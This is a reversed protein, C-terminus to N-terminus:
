ICLIFPDCRLKKDLLFGVKNTSVIVSALKYKNLEQVESNTNLAFNLSEKPLFTLLEDESFNFLIKLLM